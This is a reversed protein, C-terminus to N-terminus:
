HTNNRHDLDAFYSPYETKLRYKIIEIEREVSRLERSKRWLRYLVAVSDILVASVMGSCFGWYFYAWNVM